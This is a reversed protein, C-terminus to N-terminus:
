LPKRDPGVILYAYGCPVHESIKMNYSQESSPIATSVPVILSEFDAHITNQIPHQMHTGKFYLFSMISRADQNSSSFTKQM